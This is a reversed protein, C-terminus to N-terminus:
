FVNGHIASMLEASFLAQASHVLVSMIEPFGASLLMLRYIESNALSEL